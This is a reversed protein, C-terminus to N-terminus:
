TWISLELYDRMELDTSFGMQLTGKTMSTAYECTGTILICIDKPFANHLRSCHKLGMSRRELRPRVWNMGIESDKDKNSTRSLIDKEIVM